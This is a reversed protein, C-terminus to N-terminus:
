GAERRETTASARRPTKLAVLIADLLRGAESLKAVLWGPATPFLDM